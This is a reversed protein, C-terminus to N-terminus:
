AHRRGLVAGAGSGTLLVVGSVLFALAPNAASGNVLVFVAVTASLVTLVMWPWARQRVFVVVGLVALVALMLLGGSRTTEDAALTASSIFAMGLGVVQAMVPLTLVRSMLSAWLLGLATLSLPVLYDWGRAPPPGDLWFDSLPREPVLPQLGDAVALASAGVLALESLASPALVQAPVLAALAVLAGVFFSRASGDASAPIAGAAVVAGGTLLTSAVRRRPGQARLRVTAAGGAVLLAVGLGAVYLTAGIGALVAVHGATTMSAWGQAVLALVGAAVLVSGLYAAAEVLRARSPPNAAAAPRREAHRRSPSPLKEGDADELAHTVARAQDTSLVDHAVLDALVGEIRHTDVLTMAVVEPEEVSRREVPAV